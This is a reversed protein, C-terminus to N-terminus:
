RRRLRQSLQDPCFSAVRELSPVNQTPTPARLRVFLHQFRPPAWGRVTKSCVPRFRRFCKRVIKISAFSVLIWSGLSFHKSKKKQSYVFIHSQYFAQLYLSFHMQNIGLYISKISGFLFNNSGTKVYMIGHLNYILDNPTNVLYMNGCPSIYMLIPM